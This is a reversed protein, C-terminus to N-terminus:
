RAGVVTAPKNPTLLFIRTIGRIDTALRGNAVIQGKDNIGMPESLMIKPNTPIVTRLDTGVGNTWVFPRGASVGVVQVSSNVGTAFGDFGAPLDSTLDTVQGNQFVVAHRDGGFFDGGNLTSVGVAVGNANIAAPESFLGGPLTGLDTIRGSQWMFAHIAGTATEASGVVQGRNNIAFAKGGAGGLTPLTMMISNKPILWAQAPGNSNSNDALGVIDGNDNIGQAAVTAFDLFGGLDRITGNQWLVPRESPDAPTLSNPGFSTGVAEGFNNLAFAQAGCICGGGQPPPQDGLDKLDIEKGAKILAGHFTTTKPFADSAAVDGAANIAFAMTVNSHGNPLMTVSYTAQAMAAEPLLSISGLMMGLAACTTLARRPHPPLKQVPRRASGTKSSQHNVTPMKWRSWSKYESIEGSTVPGVIL